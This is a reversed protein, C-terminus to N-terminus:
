ATELPGLRHLYLPAPSLTLLSLCCCCLIIGLILLKDM